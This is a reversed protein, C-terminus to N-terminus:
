VQAVQAAKSVTVWQLVSAMLVLAAAVAAAMFVAQTTDMAAMSAKPQLAQLVQLQQAQVQMEQAVVEVVAQQPHLM